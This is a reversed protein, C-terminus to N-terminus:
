HGRETEDRQNTMQMERNPGLDELVRRLRVALEHDRADESDM